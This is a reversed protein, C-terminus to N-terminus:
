TGTPSLIKVREVEGLDSRSGMWGGIWHSGPAIEGPTIRCPSSAWWEGGVLASTLFVKGYMKM